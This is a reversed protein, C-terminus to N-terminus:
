RPARYGLERGLPGIVERVLGAAWSPMAELYRANPDARIPYWKRRALSGLPPRDDPGPLQRRRLDLEIHDMVRRLQQEPAAVLEELRLTMGDTGRALDARATAMTNRWHEAALRLRLERPQAM